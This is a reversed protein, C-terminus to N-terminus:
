YLLYVSEIIKLDTYRRWWILCEKLNYQKAIKM